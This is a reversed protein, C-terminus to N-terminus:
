RIKDAEETAFRREDEGTGIETQSQKCNQLVRLPWM